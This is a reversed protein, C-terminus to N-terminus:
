RIREIGTLKSLGKLFLDFQGGEPITSDDAGPYGNSGKSQLSKDAFKTSINWHTGGSCPNRYEPKWQWFGIADMERWFEEWQARDPKLIVPQECRRGAHAPTFLYELEGLGSLSLKHYPGPFGGIYFQFSNPSPHLAKIIADSIFDLGMADGSKRLEDVFELVRGMKTGMVLQAAEEEPMVKSYAELKESWCPQLHPSCASIDFQFTEVAGCRACRMKIEDIPGTSEYKLGQQLEDRYAAGCV